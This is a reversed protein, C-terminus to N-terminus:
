VHLDDVVVAFSGTEGDLRRELFEFLFPSLHCTGQGKLQMRNSSQDDIAVDATWRRQKMDFVM